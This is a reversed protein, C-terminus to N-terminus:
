AQEIAERIIKEMLLPPVANGIVKCALSNKEPLVYEDPITQFRCLARPTMSVVRGQSLWARSRAKSQSTVTHKPEGDTRVTLGHGANQGDLVFARVPQKEGHQAVIAFVPADSEPFTVSGGDPATIQNAKGDVIFARTKSSLRTDVVMMPADADPIGVSAGDHSNQDTVIFARARGKTEGTVCHAPAISDRIGDGWETKANSMIFAHPTATKDSAVITQSPHAKALLLGDVPSALFSDSFEEPLRKLQWDAFRSEPLTPILDEISAYWGNWPLRRASFLSEQGTLKAPDIHTPTPKTVKRERSALLILRKRTQPVGFDASNINWYKFNYGCEDLAKCIRKFSEFNRYNYVNELSVNVPLGARIARACADAIALDDATETGNAKAQSANTCIPSMHLWYVRPLSKYDVDQVKAIIMRSKINREHCAAIAPDFEVSWAPTLGAAIAGLAFGGGGCLLDAFDKTM